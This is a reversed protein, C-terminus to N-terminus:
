EDALEIGLFLDSLAAVLMAGPPYHPKAPSAGGAIL